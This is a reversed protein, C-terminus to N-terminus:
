RSIERVKECFEVASAYTGGPEYSKPDLGTIALADLKAETALSTAEYYGQNLCSQATAFQDEPSVEREGRFLLGVSMGLTIGAFPIMAVMFTFMPSRKAEQSAQPKASM